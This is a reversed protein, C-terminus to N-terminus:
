FPIDNDDASFDDDPIESPVGGEGGSKGRAADDRAGRNGMFQCRECTIKIKSRKNNDQDTWEDLHLRGEIFVESGKSMYEAVSEATKRWCVVDVFCTRKFEGKGDDIAIRIDCVATGQPTYRLEPDKTLRGILFAKNLNAM